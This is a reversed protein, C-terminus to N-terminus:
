ILGVYFDYLQQAKPIKRNGAEYCRVEFSPLLLHKFFDNGSYGGHENNKYCCLRTARYKTLPKQENLASNEANRKLM